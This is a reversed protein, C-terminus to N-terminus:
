WPVFNVVYSQCTYCGRPSSNLLQTVLFFEWHRKDSIYVKFSEHAILWRRECFFFIMQAGYAATLFITNADQYAIVSAGPKKQARWFNISSIRKWQMLLRYLPSSYFIKAIIAHLYCPFLRGWVLSISTFMLIRLRAFPEEEQLDHLVFLALCPLCLATVLWLRSLATHIMSCKPDM